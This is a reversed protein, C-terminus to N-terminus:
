NMINIRMLKEIEEEVQHQAYSFFSLFVVFNINFGGLTSSVKPDGFSTHGEWIQSLSHSHIVYM